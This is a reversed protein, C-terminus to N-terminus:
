RTSAAHRELDVVAASPQLLRYWGSPRVSGAERPAVEATGEYYEHWWKVAQWIAEPCSAASSLGPTIEIGALSYTTEVYAASPLGQGRVLPNGSGAAGWVYGIWAVLLEPLDITTRRGAIRAQEDLGAADAAFQIVAINPWSLADDFEEISITMVGNTSPVRAVDGYNLPVTRISGDDSLLGCLSWYSPTLDHRLQSQAFRIRVDALSSGGLLVIGARLPCGQLWGANGGAQGARAALRERESDAVFGAEVVEPQQTPDLPRLEDNPRDAGSERNPIM